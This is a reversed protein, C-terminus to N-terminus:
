EKNKKELQPFFKIIQNLHRDLVWLYQGDHVLAGPDKLDVDLIFQRTRLMEHNKDVIPRRDIKAPFHEGNFCVTYLVGDRIDIGRPDCEAFMSRKIEGTAPDIQNISSSFGAAIAIWLNAGDWAMGTVKDFGKEKPFNLPLSKTVEGTEPNVAMIKMVTQDALWLNGGGFTSANVQKIDPKYSKIPAGSRKDVSKLEGTKEDFLWFHKKDWALGQPTVAAAPISPQLRPLRTFVQKQQSVGVTQRNATVKWIPFYRSVVHQGEPFVLEVTEPDGPPEPQPNIGGLASPPM